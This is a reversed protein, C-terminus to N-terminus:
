GGDEDVEVRWHGEGHGEEGQVSKGTGQRGGQFHQRHM